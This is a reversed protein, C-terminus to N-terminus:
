LVLLDTMLESSNTHCLMDLINIINNPQWRPFHRRATNGTVNADDISYTSSNHHLLIIKLFYGTLVLSNIHWLMLLVDAFFRWKSFHGGYNNRAFNAIARYSIIKILTKELVIGLQM